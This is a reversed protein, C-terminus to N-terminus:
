VNFGELKLKEYMLDMRERFSFLLGLKVFDVGCLLIFCQKAAIKRNVDLTRYWEM